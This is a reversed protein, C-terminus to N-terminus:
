ELNYVEVLGVGTGGDKGSEIATYAGPALTALIAAEAPDNPALGTAQLQAGQTAQWNDNSAVVVGNTDHLELVPNMLPNAVGASGLSPGLGRIVVDSNGGEGGSMIFGAIMVDGGTGVFGRTSINALEPNPATSLDYVEVLGVGTGLNNGREVVTYEGATLSLLVASEVAVTPALGTAQIAAQQTQGWNDNSVILGGSGYHVDLVPDALAGTVGAAGLSPGLGRILVQITGPGTVIFGADLVNDGTLVLARTSINVLKPTRQVAIFAPQFGTAAFIAATGDPTIKEITASLSNVVYINDASDIALGVPGSLSDGSVPLPGLDAGEPSFVEITNSGSNAVYLKGLSNFALGEPNNLGTPAFSGLPTGDPAFREVTNGFNAAYLNGATDFTIGTPRIVNAFVGLDVGAPSFKEVTNGGFNAAYLNGATDFALGLANNLGTSAFVGLDTGNASFKEITNQNTTVYLNGRTDLAVGNPGNVFANTFPSGNGSADYKTITNVGFDAVFFHGARAAFTTFLFAAALTLSLTSKM